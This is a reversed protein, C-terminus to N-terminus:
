DEYDDSEPNKVLEGDIFAYYTDELVEEGDVFLMQSGKLEWKDEENRDYYKDDPDDGLYRWDALVLYSGKVGKARGEYGWSVAVSFPNGSEVTSRFGTASSAGCNGTASSAGYDGTASSAGKYGTASSAGCNGTASSAGKYGTASSAGCIPLACTQVGTM